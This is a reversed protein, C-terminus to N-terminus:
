HKEKSLRRRVYDSIAQDLIRRLPQKHQLSYKQLRKKVESSIRVSESTEKLSATGESM